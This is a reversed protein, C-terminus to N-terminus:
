RPHFEINNHSAVDKLQTSAKSHDAVMRKGFEKVSDPSGNQQAIQGLKVEAMGGSAAAKVFLQDNSQARAAASVCVMWSFLFLTYLITQIQV